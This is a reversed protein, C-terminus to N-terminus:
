FFILLFSTLLPFLSSVSCCFHKWFPTCGARHGPLVKGISWSLSLFQGAPFKGGAGEVQLLEKRKLLPCDLLVVRAPTRCLLRKGPVKPVRHPLLWNLALRQCLPETCEQQCFSLPAAARRDPCATPLPCVCCPQCGGARPVFGAEARLSFATPQCGRFTLCPSKENARATGATGPTSLSSHHTIFPHVAWLFLEKFLAKRSYHMLVLLKVEESLLHHSLFCVPLLM